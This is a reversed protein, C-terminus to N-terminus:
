WCVEMCSTLALPSAKWDGYFCMWHKLDYFMAKKNIHTMKERRFWFQIWGVLILASGSGYWRAISYQVSQMRLTVGPPHFNQSPLTVTYDVTFRFVLWPGGQFQFFVDWRIKAQVIFPLIDNRNNRKLVCYFYFYSFFIYLCPVNRM